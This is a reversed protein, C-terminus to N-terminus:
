VNELKSCSTFASTKQECDFGLESISSTQQNLRTLLNQLLQFDQKFCAPPLPYFWCVLELLISYVVTCPLTKLWSRKSWVLFARSLINLLDYFSGVTLPICIKKLWILINVIISICTNNSTNQLATSTLNAM